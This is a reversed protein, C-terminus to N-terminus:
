SVKKILELKQKRSMKKIIYERKKADSETPFEEKYLLNVPIRGRTYKAWKWANHTQIRKEINNTYGTYLSEDSCSLIYVFHAMIKEWEYWFGRQYGWTSSCLYTCPAIWRSSIWRSSKWHADGYTWHHYIICTRSYDLQTTRHLISGYRLYRSKGSCFRYRRSYGDLIWWCDSRSYAM